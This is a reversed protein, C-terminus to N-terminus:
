ASTSEHGYDRQNTDQGASATSFKNLYKYIRSGSLNLEWPPTTPVLPGTSPEYTTPKYPVKTVTGTFAAQLEADTLQQFPEDVIPPRSSKAKCENCIRTRPNLYNARSQSESCHLCKKM